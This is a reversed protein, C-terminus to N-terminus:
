EVWFWTSHRDHAGGITVSQGPVAEFPDTAHFMTGFARVGADEGTDYVIDDTIRFRLWQAIGDVRGGTARVTVARTEPEVPGTARFDVDFITAADSARRTSAPDLTFLAPRHKNFPTMDFGDIEGMSADAAALNELLAVRIECRAPIIPANPKILRRRADDVAPLAGGGLLNNALNDWLLVDFPADFDVGIQLDASTKAVITVRDSYGNREVVERALAAVVPDRECGVVHGAGCRAALMAFFGTGAGIDLVTCGPTFVSRFAREYLAIRPHDQLNSFYWSSVARAQVARALTAIEPDGPAAALAKDVLAVARETLGRPILLTKALHVMARPNDDVAAILTEITDGAVAM